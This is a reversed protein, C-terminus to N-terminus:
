ASSFGKASKWARKRQTTLVTNRRGAKRDSVMRTVGLKNTSSDNGDDNTEGIRKVDECM